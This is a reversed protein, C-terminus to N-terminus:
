TTKVYEEDKQIETGPLIDGTQKYWRYIENKDIKRETVIEVFQEPVADADVINVIPRKKVRQAAHVANGAKKTDTSQLLYKIFDQLRSIQNAISKEKGQLLVRQYKVGELNSELNKLKAVFEAVKEDFGIELNELREIDEPTEEGFAIIELIERMDDLLDFVEIYENQM